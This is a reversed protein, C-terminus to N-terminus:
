FYLLKLWNTRLGWVISVDIFKFIEVLKEVSMLLLLEGHM